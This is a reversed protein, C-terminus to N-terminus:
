LWFFHNIHLKTKMTVAVVVTATMAIILLAVTTTTLMESEGVPFYSRIIPLHLRVSVDSLTLELVVPDM